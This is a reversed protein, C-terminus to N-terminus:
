VNSLSAMRKGVDHYSSDVDLIRQFYEVAQNTDGAQEHAMGLHYLIGLHERSGNEPISEANALVAVADEPRNARMLAIGWMEVARVMYDKDAAAMEFSECAQDFLGMELYVLGMEYLQGPDKADDTGGIQAGIEQSITALQDNDGGGIDEDDTPWFKLLFIWPINPPNKM